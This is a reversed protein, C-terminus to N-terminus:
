GGGLFNAFIQACADLLLDHGKERTMRGMAVICGEWRPEEPMGIAESIARLRDGDLANPIVHVRDSRIRAAAWSRLSETQVVLAAAHRYFNDRLLSWARPIVYHEPNTREAVVVRVGYGACALLTMVNTKDVFSLVVDPGSARIARRLRWWRQAVRFSPNFRNRLHSPLNLCIRSVRSDISYFDNSLSFTILTVEHRDRAWFNALGAMVREAGGSGLSSIVLAIKLKNASDGYPSISTFFLFLTYLPSHLGLLQSVM